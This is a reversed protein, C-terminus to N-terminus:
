DALKMKDWLDEEKKSSYMYGPAGTMDRFTEHSLGGIIRCYDGHLKAWVKELLLVWLENGHATSFCVKKNKCPFYCDVVVVKAEGNKTCRIGFVDNYNLDTSVFLKRVRDPNEALASLVSLFYCDGLARQQIDNPDIGDAFIAL